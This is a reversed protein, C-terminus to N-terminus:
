PATPPAERNYHEIWGPLQREVAELTEIPAQYLYDRKFSGFFAEALGNSEPSRRPTHCPILGMARVFPRFRHSTYEPGNDSLFEIGGARERAEGFRRFFAEQLMGALDDATIRRGFRWDLVMRDACDLMVALRGKEGDWSRIGTIDSTWRHNPEAVQVRGEHRRGSRIGRQRITSLWGRRRMARWATKLNRQIGQRRLLAHVRRYGYSAPSSRLLQRIATEIEPRRVPWGGRPRQYYYWSRPKGLVRCVM